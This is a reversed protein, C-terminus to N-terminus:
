SGVSGNICACLHVSVSIFVSTHPRPPPQDVCIRHIWACGAGLGPRRFGMRWDFSGPSVPSTASKPVSALFICIFAPAGPHGFPHLAGVLVPLGRFGAQLPARRGVSPHASCCLLSRTPDVGVFLVLKCSGVSTYSSWSILVHLFLSPEEWLLMGTVLHLPFTATFCTM